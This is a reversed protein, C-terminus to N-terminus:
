TGFHKKFYIMMDRKSNDDNKTDSVYKDNKTDKGYNIPISFICGFGKAILDGGTMNENIM